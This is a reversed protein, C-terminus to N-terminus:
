LFLVKKYLLENEGRLFPFIVSIWDALSFKLRNDPEKYDDLYNSDDLSNALNEEPLDMLLNNRQNLEVGALEEGEENEVGPNKNSEFFDFKRWAILKEESGQSENDFHTRRLADGGDVKYLHNILDIYYKRTLFPRYLYALLLFAKIYGGIEAIIAFLKRYTREHFDTITSMQIELRYLNNERAKSVSERQSDMLFYTDKKKKKLLMGSDTAVSAEKFFIEHSKSFDEDIATFVGALNRQFPKQFNKLDLGNNVFYVAVNAKNIFDNIEKDSKCDNKCKEISISLKGQNASDFRGKIKM